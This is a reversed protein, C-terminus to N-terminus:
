RCPSSCPSCPRTPVAEWSCSPPRKSARFTAEVHTRVHTFQAELAKHCEVSLAMRGEADGAMARIVLPSDRDVFFGIIGREDDASLTVMPAKPDDDSRTLGFFRSSAERGFIPELRARLPALRDDDAVELGAGLASLPEDQLREAREATFRAAYAEASARESGTWVRSSSSWSAGTYLEHRTMALLERSGDDLSDRRITAGSCAVCPLM